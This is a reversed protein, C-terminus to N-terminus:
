VRVSMVFSVFSIKAVIRKLAEPDSVLMHSNLYRLRNSYDKLVSTTDLLALADEQLSPPVLLSKRGCVCTSTHPSDRLARCLSTREQMAHALIAPIVAPPNEPISDRHPRSKRCGYLGVRLGLWGGTFHTGPRTGM